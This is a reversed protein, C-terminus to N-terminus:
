QADTFLPVMSLQPRPIDEQPCKTCHAALLDLNSDRNFRFAVALSAPAFNSNKDQLVELLHSRSETLDWM